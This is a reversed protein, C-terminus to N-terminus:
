ATAEQSPEPNPDIVFPHHHDAVAGASVELKGLAGSYDQSIVLMYLFDLVFLQAHHAIIDSPHLFREPVAAVLCLDAVQALPSAPNNTIAVTLAGSSKAKALMEATESTTGSHSIGLAVDSPGLIAASALGLHADAWSHANIGIRFFRHQIESAIIGSGGSGYLDLQRCQVLARAVRTCVELNLLETTAELSRVQGSLLNRLLDSPEDDPRFARGIEVRKPSRGVDTAVAVRFQVYGDFGLRRCFRTITAPSTGARQALETISLRLPATPDELLVRAIKRMAGSMMPLSAEVQHSIRLVPDPAALGTAM